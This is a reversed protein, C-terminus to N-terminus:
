GHPAAGRLRAHRARLRLVNGGGPRGRRAHVRVLAPPELVGEAHGVQGHACHLVGGRYRCRDSVRVAPGAGVGAMAVNHLPHVYTSRRCRDLVISSMAGAIARM